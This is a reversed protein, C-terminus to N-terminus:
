HSKANSSIRSYLLLIFWSLALTGLVPSPSTRDNCTLVQLAFGFKALLTIYELRHLVFTGIVWSSTHFYPLRLYTLLLLLVVVPPLFKPSSLIVCLHYKFGDLPWHFPFCFLLGLAQMSWWLATVRFAPLSKWSFHDVYASAARDIFVIITQSGDQFKILM